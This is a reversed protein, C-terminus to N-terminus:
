KKLIEKLKDYGTKSVPIVKNNKLIVRYSDKEFLEIQNITNVAVIHSRHVRIFDTKSLNDEFHKMTKQCLHKSNITYIMVYDDMAEIHLIDTAPIIFIKSGDKVIVRELSEQQEANYETLKEYKTNSVTNSNISGIAKNLAENLREKSFPKLLYDIANVEFAKLAYNDYATTFIIVPKYDLLELMEFGTLKPMQVDLFILDPKLERIMKIAEFGNECEACIEISSNDKLYNRLLERALKEDDIIIVKHKM